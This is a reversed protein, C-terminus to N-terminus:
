EVGIQQVVGPSIEVLNGEAQLEDEYVPILDMGMPSKGPAERIYTPDMPARWYAIRREGDAKPQQTAEAKGGGMPTLDMGCLPCTGPGEQVVQPHMGCTYLRDAQATNPATTAQDDGCASLGLGLLVLLTFQQLIM